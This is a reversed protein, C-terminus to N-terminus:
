VVANIICFQYLDQHSIYLCSQKVFLLVQATAQMTKLLEPMEESVPEPRRAKVAGTVPSVAIFEQGNKEALRRM